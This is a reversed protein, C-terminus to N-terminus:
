TEANSFFSLLHFLFFRPLAKLYLLFLLIELMELKDKGYLGILYHITCHMKRDSSADILRYFNDLFNM